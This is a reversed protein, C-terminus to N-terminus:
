VWRGSWGSRKPAIWALLYGVAAAVSVAILPRHKIAERLGEMADSGRRPTTEVTDTVWEATVAVVETTQDWAEHAADSLHGKSTVVSDEAPSVAEHAFTQFPGRDLPPTNLRMHSDSVRDFQVYDTLVPAGDPFDLPASRGGAV